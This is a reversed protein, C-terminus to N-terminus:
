ISIIKRLEEGFNNEPCTSHLKSLRASFKENLIGFYNAWDWVSFIVATSCKKNSLQFILCFLSINKTSSSIQDGLKGTSLIQRQTLIRRLDLNDYVSQFWCIQAFLYQCAGLKRRHNGSLLCTKIIKRRWIVFLFDNEWYTSRKATIRWIQNRWCSLMWISFNIAWITEGSVYFATKVFSPLIKVIM